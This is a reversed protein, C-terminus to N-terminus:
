DIRKANLYNILRCLLGCVLAGVMAGARSQTILGGVLLGAFSALMIYIRTDISRIEKDMQAPRPEATPILLTHCQLCRPSMASNATQCTPCFM